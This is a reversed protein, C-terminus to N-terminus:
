PKFVMLGLIALVALASAYNVARSLPDDLLRRLDADLPAHDAALRTALLRARKPRQGGLGGLVLAAVFLALSADVWGADYGFRGLHVLWLGFGLVLITGSAVLLAGIRAFGLLLAIEAPENRRRAIEFPAGALVVGSVFLLVGLIHCFLAITYSTLV